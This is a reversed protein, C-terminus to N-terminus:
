GGTTPARPWRGTSCRAPAPHRLRGPHRRRGYEDARDLRRTAPPSPRSSWRLLSRSGTTRPRRAATSSRPGCGPSTSSTSSGSAAEDRFVGVTLIEPPLRRAIDARREPAIQRPSPAFVFGVADAGMAVALLADEESTIGCIKVFVLSPYRAGPSSGRPAPRFAGCRTAGGVAAGPDAHVLSEGVLVADLRGRRWAAPTTPSRPHGVRGGVDGGAPMAGGGARGPRPRGRLHRPRAPQRRRARRGRGAGARARGRRAGRGPRRAWRAPWRRPPRCSATTSRPPSSSCPTPAWSGPTASTPGGRHLGQAPRSTTPGPARCTTPRAASSSRTPSCRCARRGRGRRLGPWVAPDLRPDPQGEVPQAAQDRRDGGASPRPRPGPPPSQRRAEPHAGDGRGQGGPGVVRRRRRRGDRHAAVIRDLYTAM